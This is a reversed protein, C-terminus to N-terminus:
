EPSGSGLGGGSDDDLAAVADVDPGEEHMAVTVMEIGLSELLTFHRDYGPVPCVFRVKEEQGWPRESDVAGFLTLYFLCERMMSLSSSGGAVVQEPEVWLLEAFMERLDALGELGGYNRVDVGKSDKTTSPLSLLADALDLQQASPKGRTLDLKLGSDQLVRYAATQEDLLAQIQDRSLDDFSM